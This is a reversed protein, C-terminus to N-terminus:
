SKVKINRNIIYQQVITLINTCVWYLILGAAFPALIVTLFLPMLMFIKKQMRQMEDSGSPQPSLKMQLWMSSGMLVPLLGIELFSPVSYPLLGFLNFVTLPDKASLDQWVWIFPSHRMALDLLLLKYLSFFIPIQILIPFCSSAPNVGNVKYLKMMEKQLLQKDDKFRSKLNEIEPGLSKMKGMSKMSYQNLPFFILRVLITLLIIAYGYNGTFNFFYSLIKHMPVIIFYLVGYNVILDLKEIKLEKKYKNIQNIEKAGILSQVNHETITNPRVEYGKLDIYSARYKNKYDLDFRFSRGQEPIISTMWYKDGQILVGTSGEKSYKKEKVDDYDVEEVNEGTIFTYGEHLIYFDTLDSPLNNRNIRAYPYVKFTQNSKNILNQKVKFLYKEDLSIIREFRLGKETEYYIKVPNVPTLNKAGDLKWITKSNPTEIESKSAWGTNFTYGIETTAPNLLQIKEKSGLTRNYTKLELDDIAGGKLSISGKIFENEFSIRENEGIADKRTISTVEIKEDISPAESSTVVRENESKSKKTIQEQTPAFFLGYLVIVAASLAIAAIINKLDM